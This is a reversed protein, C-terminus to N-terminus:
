PVFDQPIIDLYDPYCSDTEIVTKLIELLKDQPVDYGMKVFKFRKLPLYTISIDAYSICYDSRYPYENNTKTLLLGNKCEESKFGQICGGSYFYRCLKFDDLTVCDRCYADYNCPNNFLTTYQRLCIPCTLAEPRYRSQCTPCCFLNYLGSAKEEVLAYKKQRYSLCNPCFLTDEKM